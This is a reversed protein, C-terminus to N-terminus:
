RVGGGGAELLPLSLAVSDDCVEHRALWDRLGSLEVWATEVVEGDAFTFPGDSEALYVDGLVRARADEYRGGGLWRLPVDIGAEEALERRATEGAGEGARVVGGFAVDWRGPYVDKWAARRHVLLRGGSDLVLVYVARHRLNGRRLEGRTVVAVSRGEGDLVEVSEDAASMSRM